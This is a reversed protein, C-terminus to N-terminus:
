EIELLAEILTKKNETLQEELTERTKTENHGMEAPPSCLCM